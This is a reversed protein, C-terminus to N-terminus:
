MSVETLYCAINSKDSCLVVEIPFQELSFSIYRIVCEGIRSRWAQLTILQRTCLNRKEESFFIHGRL